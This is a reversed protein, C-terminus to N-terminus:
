DGAPANAPPEFAISQLLLSFPRPDGDPHFSSSCAVVIPTYGSYDVHPVPLRLELPGPATVPWDQGLLDAIYVAVTCPLPLGAPIAARVVIEGPGHRVLVEAAPSIAYGPGHGWGDTRWEHFGRCLYQPAPGTTFDLRAPLEQPDPVASGRVGFGSGGAIDAESPRYDPQLPLGRRWRLVAEAAIAHGHGSLHGDSVYTAIGAGRAARLPGLLCAIEIGRAGCFRLLEREPLEYDLRDTVPQGLVAYSRIELSLQHPHLEVQAREPIVLVLLESGLAEVEHELAVLLDRTRRWGAQWRDRAASGVAGPRFSQEAQFFEFNSTPALGAELRPVLRHEFPEFPLWNRRNTRVAYALVNRESWAYAHSWRRVWARVPYRHMRELALPGGGRDILYPRLYDGPSIATTGALEPTNNVVDNPPYLLLVVAHPRVRPAYRRLALLQQATGWDDCCLSFSRLPHEPTSLERAVREGVLEEERVAWANLFSDGLFLLRRERPDFRTGESPLDPGRFGESSTRYPFEGREDRNTLVTGAELRFGFEPDLVLQDHFGPAPLLLRVGLEALGATVLFSGALLLLKRRLSYRRSPVTSGQPAILAADCRIRLPALPM